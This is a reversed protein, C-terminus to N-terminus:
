YDLPGKKCFCVAKQRGVTRPLPRGCSLGPHSQHAHLFVLFQQLNEQSNMAWPSASHPCSHGTHAPSSTLVGETHLIRWTLGDLPLSPLGAPALATTPLCSVPFSHSHFLSATSSPPSANKCSLSANSWVNVAHPKWAMPPTQYCTHSMPVITALIRIVLHGVPVFCFYKYQVSRQPSLKSTVAKGVM